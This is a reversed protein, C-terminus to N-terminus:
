QTDMIEQKSNKCLKVYKTCHMGCKGIRIDSKYNQLKEMHKDVLDELKTEKYVSHIIGEAGGNLICTYKAFKM